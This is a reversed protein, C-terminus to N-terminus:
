FWFGPGFGRRHMPGFMPPRRWMGYGGWGYPRGWFGGMPLFFFSRRFLRIVFLFILITLIM